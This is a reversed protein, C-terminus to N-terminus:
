EAIKFSFSHSNKTYKDINSFQFNLKPLSEIKSIKPKKAEEM